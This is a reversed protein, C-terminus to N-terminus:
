DDESMMSVAVPARQKATEPLDDPDPDPDYFEGSPEPVNKQLTQPLNGTDTTVAGPDSPAASVHLEGGPGYLAPDDPDPMADLLAQVRREEEEADQRMQEERQAELVDLRRTLRNIGDCFAAVQRERLQQEHEQQEAIKEEALAADRVLQQAAARSKSDHIPEMVASMSGSAIVKGTHDFLKFMQDPDYVPSPSTNNTM